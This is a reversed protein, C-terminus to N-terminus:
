DSPYVVAIFFDQGLVVLCRHGQSFRTRQVTKLDASVVAVRSLEAFWGSGFSHWLFIVWIRFSNIVDVRGMIHSREGRHGYAPCLSDEPIALWVCQVM